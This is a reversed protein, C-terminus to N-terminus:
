LEEFTNYFTWLKESIICGEQFYEVPYEIDVLLLDFPHCDESFFQLKRLNDIDESSNKLPTCMGESIRSLIKPPNGDGKSM